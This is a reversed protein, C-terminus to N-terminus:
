PFLINPKDLFLESFPDRISIKVDEPLINLLKLTNMTRSLSTTRISIFCRDVENDENYHKETISLKNNSHSGIENLKEETSPQLIDEYYFYVEAEDRTEPNLHGMVMSINMHNYNFVHYTRSGHVYKQYQIGSEYIYAVLQEDSVYRSLIEVTPVTLDCRVALNIFRSELDYLGHCVLSIEENPFFDEPISSEIKVLLSPICLLEKTEDMSKPFKIDRRLNDYYFLEYWETISMHNSTEHDNPHHEVFFQDNIIETLLRKAKPTTDDVCHIMMVWIIRKFTPAYVRYSSSDLTVGFHDKIVSEIHTDDLVWFDFPVYLLDRNVLNTFEVQKM